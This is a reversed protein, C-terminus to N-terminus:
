RKLEIVFIKKEASIRLVGDTLKGEGIADMNWDREIYRMGKLMPLELTAGVRAVQVPAEGVSVTAAKNKEQCWVFEGRLKGEDLKFGKNFSTSVASVVASACRNLPLGDTSVVTVEVYREDKKVPYAIDPTNSISIDRLVVGNKFVIHTERM